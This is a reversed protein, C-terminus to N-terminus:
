VPAIFKGGNAGSTHYHGGRNYRVATLYNSIPSGTYTNNGPPGTVAFLPQKNMTVLGKTNINMAESHQVGGHHTEFGIEEGAGQNRFSIAAGGSVNLTYGGNNNLYQIRADSGMLRINNGSSLTLAEPTTTQGVGISGTNTINNSQADLAGGLQPTTDNVLDAAPVNDLAGAVIDGNADVLDAIDRARTM